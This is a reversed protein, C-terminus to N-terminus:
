WYKSRMTNTTTQNRKGEKHESAQQDKESKMQKSKQWIEIKQREM